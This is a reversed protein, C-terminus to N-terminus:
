AFYTVNIRLVYTNVIFTGNDYKAVYAVTSSAPVYARGMNGTAASELVAGVASTSAGATYPLSVLLAGTGTGADTIEVIVSATVQRGIRTYQAGSVSTSTITGGASTITPTWTGEEYWNLLTSTKGALTSNASFNIGKAATGQVLNGTDFQYSLNTGDSSIVFGNSVGSQGVRFMNQAGAPSVVDVKYVPTAGVGLNSGDFLLVGGTTVAKSANLYAVANAVGGTLTLASASVAKGATLNDVSVKVTTGGQVVPLVETGALPTTAATLQSIKKDAM